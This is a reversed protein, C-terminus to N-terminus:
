RTFKHHANAPVPQFSVVGDQCVIFMFCQLHKKQEICNKKEIKFILSYVVHLQIQDYIIIVDRM